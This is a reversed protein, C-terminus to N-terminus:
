RNRKRILANLRLKTIRRTIQFPIAFLLLAYLADCVAMEITDTLFWRGNFHIEGVFLLVFLAAMLSHCCSFFFTLLPLTSFTDEFFQGKLPYCLFLTAALPLTHMGMRFSGSLCDVIFGCITALVVIQFHTKHFCFRALFPLFYLLRLSPFFIPFFLLSLLSILFSPM